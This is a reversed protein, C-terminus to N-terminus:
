QYVVQTVQNSVPTAETEELQHQPAVSPKIFRRNCCLVSADETQVTYSCLKHESPIETVIGSKWLSKPDPQVYVPQNPYLPSLDKASRCYHASQKVQQQLMQECVAERQYITQLSCMPLLARFKRNNLMEAPSPLKNSQPTARYVLMALNFDHGSALCMKMTMKITQVMSEIFGNSQVYCPSSTIHNFRYQKTFTKFEENAFQPGNDSMVTMPIGYESFISKLQGIVSQSSLGSLRRIIPLRRYYDAILLYHTSQLEFLDM